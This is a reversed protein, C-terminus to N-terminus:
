SVWCGTEPREEGQGAVAAAPSHLKSAPLCPPRPPRGNARAREREPSRAREAARGRARSPAPGPPPPPPPPRISLSLSDLPFGGFCLWMNTRPTRRGRELRRAVPCQDPATSRALSRAVSKAPMFTLFNRLQRGPLAGDYRLSRYQM